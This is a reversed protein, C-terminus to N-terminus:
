GLGRRRFVVGTLALVVVAAGVLVFLTTKSDGEPEPRAGPGTLPALDDLNPDLFRTEVRNAKDGVKRTVSYDIFVLKGGNDAAFLHGDGDVTGQDFRMGPIDLQSSITEPTGSDIQLISFSGFLLLSATFEDFTIGHAGRLDQKLRQTQMTELDIRGFNGGGNPDSSTYFARGLAFGVSSIFPDDGQLAQLTGDQLPAIPVSALAGPLGATWVREENPDLAVHYAAPGGSKVQQYEGSEPDVEFVLGTAGGGVILKGDPSFVIGDAGPLSAILVRRGIQFGNSDYTFSVKKVSPPEYLTYFLEGSVAAPVDNQAAAPVLPVLALCAGLVLCRRLLM